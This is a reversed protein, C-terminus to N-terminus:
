RGGGYFASKGPNGYAARQGTERGSWACAGKGIKLFLWASPLLKKHRKTFAFQFLAHEVFEAHSDKADKVYYCIKHIDASRETFAKAFQDHLM